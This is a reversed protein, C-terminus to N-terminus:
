FIYVLADFDHSVQEISRISIDTPLTSLFHAFLQKVPIYEDFTSHAIQGLAHVGRDTRSSAIVPIRKGFLKQISTEITGQVTVRDRQPQLQWGYYNAGNYSITLKYKYM